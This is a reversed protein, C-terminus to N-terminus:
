QAAQWRADIVETFARTIQEVEERSVIFPPALRVTKGRTDKALIGKELLDECVDHASGIKPDIDVGAWLGAGRVETM